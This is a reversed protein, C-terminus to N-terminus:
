IQSHKTPSLKRPHTRTASLSAVRVIQSLKLPLKHLKISLPKIVVSTTRKTIEMTTLQAISVTCRKLNYREAYYPHTYGTSKSTTTGPLLFRTTGPPTVAKSTSPTTGTLQPSVLEPIINHERTVLKAHRVPSTTSTTTTHHGLNADTGLESEVRLLDEPSGAVASVARKSRKEDQPEQKVTLLKNLIDPNDCQITGLVVPLQSKVLQLYIGFGFYGLHIDCWQM